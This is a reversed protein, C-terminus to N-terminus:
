SSGAALHRRFFQAAKAAGDHWIQGDYRADPNERLNHHAGQIPLLRSDADAALLAHHLLEAQEYPVTEDSTGHIILYPPAGARVHAVPSAVWLRSTDGGVLATVPSPRDIHM